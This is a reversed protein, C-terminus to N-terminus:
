YAGLTQAHTPFPLLVAIVIAGSLNKKIPYSPM